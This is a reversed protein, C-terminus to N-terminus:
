LRHLQSFLEVEFFVMHEFLLNLGLRVLISSSRHSLSEVVLVHPSAFPHILLQNLLILFLKMFACLVQFLAPPLCENFAYDEVLVDVASIFRDFEVVGHTTSHLAKSLDM